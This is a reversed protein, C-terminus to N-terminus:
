GRPRRGPSPTAVKGAALQTQRAQSRVRAEIDPVHGPPALVVYKECSAACLWAALQDVGAWGEIKSMDKAAQEVDSAPALVEIMAHQHHILAENLAAVRAATQTAHPLLLRVLAVAGDRAAWKLALAHQDHNDDPHCKELQDRVIDLHRAQAAEWVMEPRDLATTWPALALLVERQAHRAAIVLAPRVNYTDGRTPMYSLLVNIVPMHGFEAAHRLAWPFEERLDVQGVLVAVVASHGGAAAKLFAGSLASYAPPDPLALHGRVSVLDGHTAAEILDPLAPSPLSM